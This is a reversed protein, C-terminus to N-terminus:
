GTENVSAQLGTWSLYGVLGLAISAFVMMYFAPFMVIGTRHTVYTCLWPATGGFLAAALTHTVTMGFARVKQDFATGLTELMVSVVGSLLWALVIQVGLLTLYSAHQLMGFLPYSFLLIGSIHIILLRRYGIVGALYGSLLSFVIYVVLMLTNTSQAITLPVSLFHSLYTPMWFILIYVCTEMFGVLFMLPLLHRRINRMLDMFRRQVQQMSAIQPTIAPQDIANRLYFIWISLPISLLYPIRWGWRLLTTTDFYWLLLSAVASSLLLGISSGTSVTSCLFSRMNSPATEFIYCASMPLEGGAAFGQIFRLALLGFMALAGVQGYTPLFGILATPIAMTLLSRKLAYGHGVESGLYGYFFSGLPRALYSISFLAYAQITMMVPQSAALFNQGMIVILHLYIAFEYWELVNAAFGVKLLRSLSKLKTLLARMIGM